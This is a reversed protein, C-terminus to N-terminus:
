QKKWLKGGLNFGQIIKPKINPWVDIYEGNVKRYLAKIDDSTVPSNESINSTKVEIVPRGDYYYLNDDGTSWHVENTRGGKVKGSQKPRVFGSSLLDTIQDEGTIRYVSGSDSAHLAGPNNKGFGLGTQNFVRNRANWDFPMAELKLPNISAYLHKRWTGLTPDWELGKLDKLNVANTIWETGLEKSPTNREIGNLKMADGFIFRYPIESSTMDPNVYLVKKDTSSLIKHNTDYKLNDIFDDFSKNLTWGHPKNEGWFLMNQVPGYYDTYKDRTPLLKGNKMIPYHHITSIGRGIGAATTYVGTSAPDGHILMITDDKVIGNQKPPSFELNQSIGLDRNYTKWLREKLIPNNKTIYKIGSDIMDPLVIDSLYQKTIGWYPINGTQTLKSFGKWAAGGRFLGSLTGLSPAIWSTKYQKDLTKGVNYGISSAALGVGETVVTPLLGYSFVSGATPFLSIAGTQIVALNRAMEQAEESKGENYLQRVTGAGIAGVKADRADQAGQVFWDLFSKKNDEPM